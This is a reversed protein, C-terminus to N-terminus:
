DGGQRLFENGARADVPLLSDPAHLVTSAVEVQTAVQAGSLVPDDGQTLGPPVELVARRGGHSVTWLPVDADPDDLVIQEGDLKWLGGIGRIHIGAPDALTFSRGARALGQAATCVNPDSSRGPVCSGASAVLDCVADPAVQDHVIGCDGLLGTLAGLTNVPHTLCLIGKTGDNWPNVALRERLRFLRNVPGEAEPDFDPGFIEEVTPDADPYLDRIGEVVADFGRAGLAMWWEPFLTTFTIREIRGDGEDGAREVRWEVYEEQLRFRDADIESDAAVVKRPFAVWSVTAERAGDDGGDGNVIELSDFAGLHTFASDQKEAERAHDRDVLLRYVFLVGHADLLGSGTPDSYDM